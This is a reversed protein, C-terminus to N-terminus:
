ESCIKALKTINIVYQWVNKMSNESMGQCYHKLKIFIDNEIHKSYEDYSYNLFFDRDKELIKDQFRNTNVYVDRIKYNVQRLQEMLSEIQEADKSKTVTDNWNYNSAEIKSKHQIA